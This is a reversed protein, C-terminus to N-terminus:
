AARDSRDLFRVVAHNGTAVKTRMGRPVHLAVMSGSRVVGMPGAGAFRGIGAVHVAWGAKAQRYGIRIGLGCIVLLGGVGPLAVAALAALSLPLLVETVARDLFSDPSGSTAIGRLGAPMPKAVAAHTIGAVTTASLLSPAAPAEAILGTATDAAQVPAWMVETLGTAPAPDLPRPTQPPALNGPPAPVWNIGMLTGLDTPLATIASVSGTMTTLMYEITTIVDSVPTASTPLTALLAPLAAVTDHTSDLVTAVTDGVAAVADPVKAFPLPHRNTPKPAASSQPTSGAPPTTAAPEPEAVSTPPVPPATPEAAVDDATPAVIEIAVEPTVDPADITGPTLESDEAASGGAPTTTGPRTRGDLSGLSRRVDNLSQRLSERLSSGVDTTTRPSSPSSGTSGSTQGGTSSSGTGGSTGDDALAIAVPGGLLLATSLVGAGLAGRM